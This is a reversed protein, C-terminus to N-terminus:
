KGEMKRIEERIQEKSMGLSEMCNTSGYYDAGITFMKRANESDGLEKYICGMSHYSDERNYDFPNAFQPESTASKYYDLATELNNKLWYYLGISDSAERMYHINLFNVNKNDCVKKYWQVAIDKNKEVGMDEDGISYIDGLRYQSALGGREAGEKLIELAEVPKEYNCKIIHAMLWTADAYGNQYSKELFSMATEVRNSKTIVEPLFKDGYYYCIYAIFFTEQPTLTDIKELAQKLLEGGQKKVSNEIEEKIQSSQINFSCSLASGFLELAFFVNQQVGTGDRYCKALMELAQSQAPPKNTTMFKFDERRLDYRASETYWKVAEIYNREVIKGEYYYNGLERASSRDGSKAVKKLKEIMCENRLRKAEEKRKMSKEKSKKFFNMISM